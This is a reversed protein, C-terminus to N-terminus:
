RSILRPNAVAWEALRDDRIAQYLSKGVTPYIQEPPAALNEGAGNRPISAPDANPTTERIGIVQPRGLAGVVQLLAALDGDVRIGDKAADFLQRLQAPKVAGDSTLKASLARLFGQVNQDRDHSGNSMGVRARLLPTVDGAGIHQCGPPFGKRGFSPPVREPLCMTVGGVARTVARLATYDVTVTADPDVGTLQTV